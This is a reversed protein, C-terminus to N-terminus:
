KRLLRLANGIARALTGSLKAWEVPDKLGGGAFDTIEQAIALVAAAAEIRRRADRLEKTISEAGFELHDRCVRLRWELGAACPGCV